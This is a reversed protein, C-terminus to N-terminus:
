KWRVTEQGDYDNIVYHALAPVEVINIQTSPRSAFALGIQQYIASDRVEDKEATYKAKEKAFLITHTFWLACRLPDLTYRNIFADITISPDRLYKVFTVFKVDKHQRKTNEQITRIAAKASAVLNSEFEQQVEERPRLIAGMLRAINWKLTTRFANLLYPKHPANECVTQGFDTIAKILVPDSRSYNPNYGPQAALFAEFKPSLGWGGYSECVLVKQPPLHEGAREVLLSLRARLDKHSRGHTLLMKVARDFHLEATIRDQDTDLFM